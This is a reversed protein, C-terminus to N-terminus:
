VQAFLSKQWELYSSGECTSCKESNNKRKVDTWACLSKHLAWEEFSKANGNSYWVPFTRWSAEQCWSRWERTQLAWQDKTNPQSTLFLFRSNNEGRGVRQSACFGFGCFRTRTKPIGEVLLGCCESAEQRGQHKSSSCLLIESVHQGHSVWDM